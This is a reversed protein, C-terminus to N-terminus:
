RVAHWLSYIVLNILFIAGGIALADSRKRRYLRGLVVALTGHYFGAM